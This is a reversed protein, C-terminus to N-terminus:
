VFYSFLQRIGTLATAMGRWGAMPENGSASVAGKLPGIMEQGEINGIEALLLNQGSGSDM